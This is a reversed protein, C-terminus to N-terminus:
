RTGTRLAVICFLEATDVDCNSLWISADTLGSEDLATLLENGNYCFISIRAVKTGSGTYNISKGAIAFNSGEKDEFDGLSLCIQEPSIGVRSTDALGRPSIINQQPSFTVNQTTKLTAPSNWAEKLQDSAAKSPESGIDFRIIGLVSFLVMLIALAVVASILLQFVSSAQARSDM